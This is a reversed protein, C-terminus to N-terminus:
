KGKALDLDGPRVIRVRPLDGARSYADALIEEFAPSDPHELMWEEDETLLKLIRKSM